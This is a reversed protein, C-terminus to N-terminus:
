KEKQVSVIEKRECPSHLLVTKRVSCVSGVSFLVLLILMETFETSETHVTKKHM